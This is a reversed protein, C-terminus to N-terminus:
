ESEDDAEEPKESSKLYKAALDRHTVEVKWDKGYMGKLSKPLLEVLAVSRHRGGSCGIAIKPNYSARAAIYGTIITLQSQFGRCQSLFAQVRDDLGSLSRLEPIHYPNRVVKRLDFMKMCGEPIGKKYSFSVLTIVPQTLTTMTTKPQTLSSLAKLDPLVDSPLPLTQYLDVLKMYDEPVVWAPCCMRGDGWTAVHEGPHYKKRTCGYTVGGYRVKARCGYGGGIDDVETMMGSNFTDPNLWIVEDENYTKVAM